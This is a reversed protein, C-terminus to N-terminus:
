RGQSAHSLNSRTHGFTRQSPTLFLSFNDNPTQHVDMQHAVPVAADM